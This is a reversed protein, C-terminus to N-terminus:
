SSTSDSNKRKLGRELAQLTAVMSNCHLFFASMAYKTDHHNACFLFHIVSRYVTVLATRYTLQLPGM